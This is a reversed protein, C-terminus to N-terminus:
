AVVALKRVNGAADKVEIHGVVAADSQTVYAGFRVRGTGKPVLLIDIDTDTGTAQIEPPSSAAANRIRFNNVRESSAGGSDLTLIAGSANWFYLDGNGKSQVFISVNTDAGEAVLRAFQSSASARLYNIAGTGTRAVRFCTEGAVTFNHVNDEAVNYVAGVGSNIKPSSGSAAPSITFFNVAAGGIGGDSVTLLTGAGNGFAHVGTGKAAYNLDINTDSGQASISPGQAAVAGQLRVYNVATLVEGIEAQVSDDAALFETVGLTNVLAASRASKVWGYFSSPIQTEAIYLGTGPTADFDTDVSVEDGISILSAARVFIYPRGDSGRVTTGLRFPPFRLTSPSTVQTVDVGVAGDIITPATM